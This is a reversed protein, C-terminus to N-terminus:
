VCLFVAIARLSNLESDETETDMSYCQRIQRPRVPHMGGGIPGFEKTKAYMKVSFHWRRLDVGGRRSIRSGGSFLHAKINTITNRNLKGKPMM